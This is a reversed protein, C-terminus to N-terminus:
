REVKGPRWMCVVAWPKGQGAAGLPIFGKREYLAQSGPTSSELYAAHDGAAEIGRDLLAGGVGRGQAEGVVGLFGLYWHPFRPALKDSERELRRVRLTSRGYAALLRANMRATAIWGPERGPARWVAAGVATGAGDRAIDIRGCPLFFEEVLVRFARPIVDEYRQRPGITALTFPDERFARTLVEVAEGVDGSRATSISLPEVDAEKEKLIPCNAPM